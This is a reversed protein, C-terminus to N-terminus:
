RRRPLDLSYWDHVGGEASRRGAATFGASRAVAASPRNAAECRIAARAAGARHAYDCALLVARTAIGRRRWAAYIGYALNVEGPRLYPQDFQVDMTGVLVRERGYRVGFHHVPGDEAWARECGRLYERLGDPESPGGTLWRVLEEDEGALHAEFDAPGLPRLAVPGDDPFAATRM